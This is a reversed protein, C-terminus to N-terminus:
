ALNLSVNSDKDILLAERIVSVLERDSRVSGQVTINIVTGGVGGAKGLPIVAEPGSEGVMALTPSTIIGGAALKPVSETAGGIKGINGINVFPIKNLVNILDNIRDIIWNVAATVTSTISDWIDVFAKKVKEWNLLLLTGVAALAVIAAIVLGVPGLMITFGAAIMPLALLLPGLVAMVGGVAAAVIILTRSLEPNDAMWKGISEVIPMIGDIIKKLVPLLQAGVQEALDGLSAKLIAFPSAMKEASGAVKEQIAALADAATADEKLVIGYRSLTGFQGQAVKGLLEGATKADMQKAAMLDLATPLLELAKQYDGTAFVLEGLVDRQQDDAVGTKRQMAAINKELSESVADYSVGVNQLMSDLRAINIREEEAAKVSLGFAATIGVGLGTMIKGAESLNKQVSKLSKQFDKDDLGLTVFLKAIENAM